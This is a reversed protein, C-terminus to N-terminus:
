LAISSTLNSSFTKTKEWALNQTMRQFVQHLSSLKLKDGPVGAEFNQGLGKFQVKHLPFYLQYHPIM